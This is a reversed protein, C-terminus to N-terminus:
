AVSSEHVHRVKWEGGSRHLVFSFASRVEVSSGSADEGLGRFAGTAVAVDPAFVDVCCHEIELRVKVVFRFMGEAFAAFEQWRYAKGDEFATFSECHQFCSLFVRLDRREIAGFYGDLWERIERGAEAPTGSPFAPVPSM